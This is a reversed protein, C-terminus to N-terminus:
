CRALELRRLVFCINFLYVPTESENTTGRLPLTPGAGQAPPTYINATLLGSGVSVMFTRLM